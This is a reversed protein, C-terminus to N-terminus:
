PSGDFRTSQVGDLAAMLARALVARHDPTLVTPGRTCARRVVSCGHLQTCAHPPRRAMVVRSCHLWRTCARRVVSCGHLQACAHPPRRAMVVRSCHLWRTCARRVVSCGRVRARLHLVPQGDHVGEVVRAAVLKHEQQGRARAPLAEVEGAGVGDDEMVAVELSGRTHSRAAHTPPRAPPGLPIGQQPRASRVAVCPRQASARAPGLGAPVPAAM